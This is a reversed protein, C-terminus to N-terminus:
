QSLKTRNRIERAREPSIPTTDEVWQKTVKPINPKSLNAVRWDGKVLWDFFLERTVRKGEIQYVREM